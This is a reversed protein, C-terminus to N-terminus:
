AACGAASSVSLHRYIGAAGSLMMYLLLLEVWVFFACSSGTVAQLLRYDGDAKSCDCIVLCVDPYM